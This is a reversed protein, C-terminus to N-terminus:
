QGDWDGRLAKNIARISTNLPRPIEEGDEGRDWTMWKTVTGEEAVVRITDIHPDERQVVFWDAPEGGFHPNSLRRM